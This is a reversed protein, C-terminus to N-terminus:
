YSLSDLMAQISESKAQSKALRAPDDSPVTPRSGSLFGLGKLIAIAVRSDGEAIARALCVASHDALMELTSETAQQLEKRRRNYEAQFALDDKLWRFITRRSVGVSRAAAAVTRGMLLEGLVQLQAPELELVAVEQDQRAAHCPRSVATDDPSAEDRNTESQPRPKDGKTGSHGAQPQKEADAGVAAEGMLRRELEGTRVSYRKESM